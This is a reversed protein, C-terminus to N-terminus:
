EEKSNCASSDSAIQVLIYRPAYANLYLTVFSVPALFWDHIAKWAKSLSNLTVGITPSMALVTIGFYNM